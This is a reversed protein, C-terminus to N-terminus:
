GAPWPAGPSTWAWAPSSTKRATSRCRTPMSPSRWMAVKEFDNNEDLVKVFTARQEDTLDDVLALLAQFATNEM